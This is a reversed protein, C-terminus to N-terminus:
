PKASGSASSSSSKGGGLRAQLSDLMKQPEAPTAILVYGDTTPVCLAPQNMDTVFLLASSGNRLRFWGAAYGPFATGNTRGAPRFGPEQPWHFLRAEAIKISQAPILRGYLERTIRLGQPSVEFTVNKSSWILFCFLGAVGLGIPTAIVMGWFNHRRKPSSEPTLLFALVLITPLGIAMFAIIAWLWGPADPAPTIPFIDM